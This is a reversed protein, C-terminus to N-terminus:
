KDRYRTEEVRKKISELLKGYNKLHIKYNEESLIEKLEKNQKKVLRDIKKELYEKSVYKDKDDLRGMKVAYYLIISYYEDREDPTMDMQKMREEFWNYLNDREKVSFIQVKNKEYENLVPDTVQAKIVSNMGTFLFLALVIFLNRSM